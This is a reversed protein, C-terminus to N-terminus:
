RTVKLKIPVQRATLVRPTRVAPRVEGGPFVLLNQWLVLNTTVPAWISENPHMASDAKKVTKIKGAQAWSDATHNYALIHDSFGPHRAELQEANEAATGDDGGFILLQSNDAAFAPGPAAVAAEPMTALIHWGSGPTYCYADKLYVRQLRGGNDRLDTGSFLFFSGELTGAISLMRPPGPWTELTDWTQHAACSSLDLSLFANVPHVDGPAKLGGALYIKKNIITGCSNALPFPLSPLKTISLQHNLYSILWVASTHGSHNSGGICILGSTCTISVGYGIPEPMKGVFEWRGGPKKLVFIKDSWIKESGKWPLGGDPFNAGGAVLLTGQVVGSFSGAFGYQDPVPPLEDWKFEPIDNLKLMSLM